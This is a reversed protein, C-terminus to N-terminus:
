ISLISGMGLFLLFSGQAHVSKTASEFEAVVKCNHKNAYEDIHKGLFAFVAKKPLKLELKEHNPMIVSLENDDYELIPIENKIITM